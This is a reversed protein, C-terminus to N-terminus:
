RRRGCAARRRPPTPRTAADRLQARRQELALPGQRGLRAPDDHGAAVDPRDDQGVGVQLDEEVRRDLLPGPAPGLLAPEVGVAGLRPEDEGLEPAAVVEVPVPRDRRQPRGLVRDVDDGVAVRELLRDRGDDGRDPRGLRPRRRRPLRGIVSAAFSDFDAESLGAISSSSSSRPSRVGSILPPRREAGPEDGAADGADPDLAVISAIGRSPGTMRAELWMEFASATIM